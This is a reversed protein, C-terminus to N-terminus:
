TITQGVFYVTLTAVYRLLNLYIPHAIGSGYFFEPPPPTRSILKGPGRPTRPLKSIQIKWPLPYPYGCGGELYAWTHM